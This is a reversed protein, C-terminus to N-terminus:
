NSRLSIYFTAGGWGGGDIGIYHLYVIDRIHLIFGLTFFLHRKLNPYCLYRKEYLSSLM